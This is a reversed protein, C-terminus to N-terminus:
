NLGSEKGIKKVPKEVVTEIVDGVGKTVRRAARKIQKAAGGM